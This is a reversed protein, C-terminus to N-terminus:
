KRQLLFKFSYFVLFHGDKKHYYYVCFNLTEYNKVKM